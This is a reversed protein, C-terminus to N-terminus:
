ERVTANHVTRNRLWQGVVKVHCRRQTHQGLSTEIKVVLHSVRQLKMAIGAIPPSGSSVHVGLSSLSKPCGLGLNFRDIEFVPEAVNIDDAVVAASVGM